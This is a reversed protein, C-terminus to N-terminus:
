GKQMYGDYIDGNHLNLRGIGDLNGEKYFGVDYKGDCYKFIGLGTPM